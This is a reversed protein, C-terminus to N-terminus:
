VVYQMLLSYIFKSVIRKGHLARRFNTNNSNGLLLYNIGETELGENLTYIPGERTLSAESPELKSMVDGDIIPDRVDYRFPCIRAAGVKAITDSAVPAVATHQQGGDVRIVMQAWPDKNKDAVGFGEEYPVFAHLMRDMNNPAATASAITGRLPGMLEKSSGNMSTIETYIDSIIGTPIEM